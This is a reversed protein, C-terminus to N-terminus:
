NNLESWWGSSSVNDTRHYPQVRDYYQGGRVDFRKLNHIEKKLRVIEDELQVIQLNLAEIVKDHIFSEALSDM